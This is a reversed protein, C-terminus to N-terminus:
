SILEISEEAGYVTVTLKNPLCTIVQGTKSIKGQKVCLHDPCDAETLWAEGGEIHLINTGGNLPYTGEDSLSYQETEVGDVRILVYAGGDQNMQVFVFAILAVILIGGVLILDRKNM